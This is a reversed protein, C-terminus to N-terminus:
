AKSGGAGPDEGRAAGAFLGLQSDRFIMESAAKDAADGLDMLKELFELMEIRREEGSFQFGLTMDGGNVYEYLEQIYKSNLAVM